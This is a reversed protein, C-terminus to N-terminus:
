GHIISYLDNFNLQTFSGSASYTSEENEDEDYHALKVCHREDEGGAPCDPIGDCIAERDICVKSNPCVYQGPKCWEILSNFTKNDSLM